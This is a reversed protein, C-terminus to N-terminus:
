YFSYNCVIKAGFLTRKKWAKMFLQNLQFIGRWEVIEEKKWGGGAGKGRRVGGM